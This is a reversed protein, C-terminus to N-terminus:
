FGLLDSKVGFHGAAAADGADVTGGALGARPRPPRAGRARLRSRSLDAREAGGSALAREAAEGYVASRESQRVPGDDFGVDLWELDVLIAEEGGEVNRMPDTDDIRLLM